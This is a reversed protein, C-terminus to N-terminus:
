QINPVDIKLQQALQHIFDIQTQPYPIGGLEDCKAMHTREPDGAILVPKGSEPFFDINEISIIKLHNIM